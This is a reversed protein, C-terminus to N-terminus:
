QRGWCTMAVDEIDTKLPRRLNEEEPVGEWSKLWLKQLAQATVTTM